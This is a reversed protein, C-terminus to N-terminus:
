EASGSKTSEYLEKVEQETLAYCTKTRAEVIPVLHPRTQHFRRAISRVPAINGGIAPEVRRRAENWRQVDV